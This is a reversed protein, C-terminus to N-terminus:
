MNITHCLWSHFTSVQVDGILDKLDVDYQIIFDANLGNSSISKQQNLTPTYRVRACEPSQEVHTSAPADANATPFM